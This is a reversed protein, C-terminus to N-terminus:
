LVDIGTLTGAKKESRQRVRVAVYYASALLLWCAGSVATPKMSPIWWSSVVIAVLSGIALLTTYPHGRVIQPRAKDESHVRRFRVYALLIAVWVFMIQFYAVAIM